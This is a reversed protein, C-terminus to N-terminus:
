PACLGDRFYLSAFRMYGDEWELAPVMLARVQGALEVAQATWVGHARREEEPRILWENTLEEGRIWVDVSSCLSARDTRVSIEWKPDLTGNKQAAKINARVQAAITKPEVYSMAVSM